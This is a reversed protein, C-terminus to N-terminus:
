EEFVNEIKEYETEIERILTSPKVGLTKCIAFITHVTPKKIGREIESLFSRDLNSELALKEQSYNRQKRHKRIANGIIDELKM